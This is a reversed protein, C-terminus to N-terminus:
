LTRHHYSSYENLLRQMYEHNVQTSHIVIAPLNLQHYSDFTPLEFHINVKSQETVGCHTVLGLGCNSFNIIKVDLEQQELNLKGPLSVNVREGCRRNEIKM